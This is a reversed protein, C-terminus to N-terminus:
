LEVIVLFVMSNFRIIRPLFFRSYRSRQLSHICTPSLLVNLFFPTHYRFHNTIKNSLYVKQLIYVLKKGKSKRGREYWCILKEVLARPAAAAARCKEDIKKNTSCSKKRDHPSIWHVKKDSFQQLSPLTSHACFFTSEEASFTCLEQFIFNFCVRIAGVIM